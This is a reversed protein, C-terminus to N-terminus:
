ELPAAIRRPSTAVTVSETSSMRVAPSELPFGATRSTTNRCGPAFMMSVTSRTRFRSGWSWAAMGGVIARETAMSAVRVIRAETLSTSSVSSTDMARTIRTTNRNRRLTRDVRMGLTATGTESM